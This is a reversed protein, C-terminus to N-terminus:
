EAVTFCEAPPASMNNSRNDKSPGAGEVDVAALEGRAPSSSTSGTTFAGDPLTERSPLGRPGGAFTSGKASRVDVAIDAGAGAGAGLLSM